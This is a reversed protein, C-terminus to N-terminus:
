LIERKGTVDPMKWKMLLGIRLSKYFDKAKITSDSSITRTITRDDSNDYCFIGRMSKSIEDPYVKDLNWIAVVITNKSIESFKQQIERILESYHIDNPNSKLLETAKTGIKETKTAM